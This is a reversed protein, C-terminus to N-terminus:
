TNAGEGEPPLTPHPRKGALGLQEVIATLVGEINTLPADTAFRLIAFGQERFFADRRADYALADAHQSGDLEVIMKPSLCAFDAIYHGLPHQRRFKVGLQEGRLRSWLKRESDTMSGRLARANAHTTSLAQNRM